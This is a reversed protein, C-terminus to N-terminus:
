IDFFFILLLSIWYKFMKDSLIIFEIKIRIFVNETNGETQFGPSPETTFPVVEDGNCCLGMFSQVRKFIKCKRNYHM